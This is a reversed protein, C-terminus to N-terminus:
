EVEALEHETLEREFLGDDDSADKGHQRRYDRMSIMQLGVGAGIIAFSTMFAAQFGIGRMLPIAFQPALSGRIGFFSSHLAQYQAAMGPEAFLLTTNLYALDIGAVCIGMSASALYLAGISWANAYLLPVALNFGLAVLVTTLPGRRDLFGGWFFFAGITAVSTINQMNAVQTNTIQFIDVQFIPYLTTATLNGFGSVFVSATFWRYGPNRRLIDVTDSFFARTTMRDNMGEAAVPIRIRSFTFASLAGVMGGFFFGTQWSLGHDLLRGMLLAALLTMVSMGMRVFSMLRGRQHDPYIDKMIATYAPMSVSFVFPTACVLLVFQARSHLLPALMFAGRAFLWTWFVFPMKSRGDMQRAWLTAFVYGLAPAAAIWGMDALTAHLDARAVRAVFTWVCGQYIGALIGTAIDWKWAAQTQPSLGALRARVSTSITSALFL